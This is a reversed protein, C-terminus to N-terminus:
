SQPPPQPKGLARGTHPLIHRIPDCDPIQSLEQQEESLPENYFNTNLWAISAALDMFSESIEIIDDATLGSKPAAFLKEDTQVGVQFYPVLILRNKSKDFLLKFHAVKNRKSSLKSTKSLLKTIIYLTSTNEFTINASSQIAKIKANISVVADLASRSARWASHSTHYTGLAHTFLNYLQAEVESWRCLALGVAYLIESDDIEPEEYM